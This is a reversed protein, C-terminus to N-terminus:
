FLVNCHRKKDTFSEERGLPERVAITCVNDINIEESLVEAASLRRM